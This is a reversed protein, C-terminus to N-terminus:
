PRCMRLPRMLSRGPQAMFVASRSIASTCVPSKRRVGDCFRLMEPTVGSCFGTM